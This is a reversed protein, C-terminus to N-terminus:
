VKIYTDIQTIHDQCDKEFAPLTNGELAARLKYIIQDREM